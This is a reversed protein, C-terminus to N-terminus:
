SLPLHSFISFCWLHWTSGVLSFFRSTHENDVYLTMLSRCLSSYASGLAMLVLGFIFGPLTPAIGLALGGVICVGGSWRALSLDRHPEDKARLKVPMSRSILVKTLWPLLVFCHVIQCVGYITQVYGTQSLKIGYRASIFQAMFSLMSYPVAISSFLSVILLLLSVSKLMSLSHKLRSVTHAIWSRLDTSQTEEIEDEQQQKHHHTEPMFLFLIGATALLANGVWICPWPGVRGLMFSSLSPSLLNGCMSAVHIYM